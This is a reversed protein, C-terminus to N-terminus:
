NPWPNEVAGIQIFLGLNDAGIWERVVMDGDFYMITVAWVDVARRSPARGGYGGTDTGHLTFRLV